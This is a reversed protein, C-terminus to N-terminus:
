ERGPVLWAADCIMHYSYDTVCSSCHLMTHLRVDSWLVVVTNTALHVSSDLEKLVTGFQFDTYSLAAYYARRHLRAVCSPLPTDISFNYRDAQQKWDPYSLAEVCAFWQERPFRKPVTRPQPLSISTLNYLDFFPSPAIHPLHPKHLGVALFFPATSANKAFARLQTVAMAAVQGDPM